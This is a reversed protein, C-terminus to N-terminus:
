NLSEDQQETYWSNSDLHVHWVRSCVRIHLSTQSCTSWKRRNNPQRKDTKVYLLVHGACQTSSLSRTVTFALFCSHFASHFYNQMGNQTGTNSQKFVFYMFKLLLAARVQLGLSWSLTSAKGPGSRVWTILKAVKTHLRERSKILITVKFSCM